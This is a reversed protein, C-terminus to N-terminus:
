YYAINECVVYTVYPICCVSHGEIILSSNDLRKEDIHLQTLRVLFEGSALTALLEAGYIINKSIFLVKPGKFM